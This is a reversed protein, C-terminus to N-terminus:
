RGEALAIFKNFASITFPDVLFGGPGIQERTLDIYVDSGVIKYPTAINADEPTFGRQLTEQQIQERQLTQQNKFGATDAPSNYVNVFLEYSSQARMQRILSDVEDTQAKTQFGQAAITGDLAKLKRALLLATTKSGETIDVRLIQAPPIPDGNNREQLRRLRALQAPTENPNGPVPRSSFGGPYPVPQYHVAYGAAILRAKLAAARKDGITSHHTPGGLTPVPKGAATTTPAAQKSGGCAAVGCSLLVALVVACLIRDPRRGRAM